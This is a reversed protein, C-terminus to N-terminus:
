KKDKSDKKGKARAAPLLVVFRSGKSCDGPVRDEAWVLGGYNEVLTKVLYLGLGSGKAKTDGRRMRDFVKEKMEDPIGPGDDEIAVRCYARDKVRTEELWIDVIPEKGGHKVANGVINTFVDYLLGDAKVKCDQVTASYRIAAKTGPVKSFTSQARQLMEDVDTEVFGKRESSAQQLKRVNEILRSSAQIAGLSKSLMERQRGDLGAESLTIELYGLAIQNMNNIDHGMLDLYLESRAKAEEMANESQKRVTIDQTIGYVWKVNGAKDRVIKDALTNAYRVSGDPRVIRYDVSGRKGDRSASELLASLLNRDDAHVRAMIWELTPQADRSEYGFIRYNEDSGNLEGTQVNWAWNGVHAMEQSKALIYQSKKLKEEAHKRQTIDQNIGYAWKIRGNADAVVRDLLTNVYRITGDSRIIRYDISGRRGERCVADIFEAVMNRDEPYVRSLLWRSTPQLEGPPYGFIRFGEDSWNMEGTQVNWAWNGVHAMEQSKALIFQSKKLAKEARKQETIDRAITSAGIIDGNIDAIPSITISVIIRRDDKTIRETEYHEIREGRKVKELIAQIEGSREPPVVIDITKGVAEAATYGYLREAGRNWSTITGDLRKSLIADDSSMVISALRSLEEEARKRGTIDRNSGRNGMFQGEADFVPMCTHHLWRMEGDRTYIRFELDGHRVEARQHMLFSPRDEPYIIDCLLRPKAIFEEARYGTIRECSPSSYLFKLEPSLWFEWDYTNEAVIRYKAESKRLADEAAKRETIDLATFTVGAQMNGRDIPSSSLLVDIVRGDKRRWRTEVSGRGLKEMIDYKVRGVREFEEQTPYLILANKGILEERRYGTMECLRENAEMIVRNVVVGIGAPASRFISDLKAESKRLADEACKQETIDTIFGELFLDGGAGASALRGQELVWKEQSGATIIRYTIKYPESRELARRVTDRVMKRDDPHILQNYSISRSRVLDDPVYGTLEFCGDNVYEMTWDADNRCRYVMGPLNSLLISQFRKYDQLKGRDESNSLSRSHGAM